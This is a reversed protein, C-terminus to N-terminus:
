GFYFAPFIYPSIMLYWAIFALTLMVSIFPVPKKLTWRTGSNIIEAMEHRLRAIVWTGLLSLGAFITYHLMWGEAWIMDAGGMAWNGYSAWYWGNASGEPTLGILHCVVPDLFGLNICYIGYCVLLTRFAEAYNRNQVFNNMCLAGILVIPIFWFFFTHYLGQATLGLFIRTPSEWNGDLGTDAFWTVGLDIALMYLYSFGVTIAPLIFTSIVRRSAGREMCKRLIFCEIFVVVLFAPFILYDLNWRWYFLWIFDRLVNVPDGPTKTVDWHITSEFYLFGIVFAISAVNLAQFTKSKFITKVHNPKMPILM